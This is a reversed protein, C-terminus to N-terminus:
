GVGSGVNSSVGGVGGGEDGGIGGGMDDGVGRGDDGTEATLVALGVFHGTAM